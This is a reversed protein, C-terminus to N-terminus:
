CLCFLKYIHLVIKNSTSTDTDCLQTNIHFSGRLGVDCDTRGGAISRKTLFFPMPLFFSHLKHTKLHDCLKEPRLHDKVHSRLFFKCDSTNSAECKKTSARRFASRQALPGQLGEHIQRWSCQCDKVSGHTEGLNWNVNLRLTRTM